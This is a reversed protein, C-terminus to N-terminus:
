SASEKFFRRLVRRLLTSTCSGRPTCGLSYGSKSRNTKLVFWFLDPFGKRSENQFCIPLFRFFDSSISAFRFLDPYERFCPACIPVFRFFVPFDSCIPTVGKIRNVGFYPRRFISLRECVEIAHSDLSKYCTFGSEQTPPPWVHVKRMM